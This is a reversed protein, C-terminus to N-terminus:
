YFRSLIKEPIKSFELHKDARFKAVRRRIARKMDWYCLSPPLGFSARIAHMQGKEKDTFFFLPNFNPLSQKLATLFETIVDM